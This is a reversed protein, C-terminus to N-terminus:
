LIFLYVYLHVFFLQENMTDPYAAQIQIRDVIALPSSPM